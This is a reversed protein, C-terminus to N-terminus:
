KNIEMNFKTNAETVSKLFASSVSDNIYDLMQKLKEPSPENVVYSAVSSRPTTYEWLREPINRYAKRVIGDLNATTINIAVPIHETLIDKLKM